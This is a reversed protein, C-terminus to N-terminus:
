TLGPFTTRVQNTKTTVGKGVVKHTYNVFVIWAFEVCCMHSKNASNQIAAKMKQKLEIVDCSEIATRELLTHANKVAVIAKYHKM